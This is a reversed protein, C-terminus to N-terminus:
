FCHLGPLSQFICTDDSDKSVSSADDTQNPVKSKGDDDKIFV